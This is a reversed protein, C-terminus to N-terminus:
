HLVIGQAAEAASRDALEAFRVLLVGHHWRSGAVSLATLRSASGAPQEARLVAGDAFRREPEDTRVDVTM